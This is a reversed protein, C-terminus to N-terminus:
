GYLVRTGGPGPLHQAAGVVVVLVVLLVGGVVAMWGRRGDLLLGNWVVAFLVVLLLPMGDPCARAECSVGECRM